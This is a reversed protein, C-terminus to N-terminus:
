PTRIIPLCIGRCTVDAAVAAASTIAQLTWNANDIFVRCTGGENEAGVDNLTVQSLMCLHSSVPEMTQNASGGDSVTALFSNGLGFDAIGQDDAECIVQGDSLIERISSGVACVGIVRRQIETSNIDEANISNNQIKASAVSDAGLENSGVAEFAIESARVADEAIEDVGVAGISIDINTITRDVISASDVGDIGVARALSARPTQTLQQRPSLLTFSPQGTQRVRIELWLEGDMLIANGFNLEANFIGNTVMQNSLNEDGMTVGGTPVDFLSFQFDFSGNAPLGSELLEGQYTFLDDQAIVVCAYSLLLLTICQLSIDRYTITM